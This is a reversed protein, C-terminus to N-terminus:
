TESVGIHKEPLKTNASSRLVRSPSGSEFDAQHATLVQWQLSCAENHVLDGREWLFEAHLASKKNLWEDRRRIVLAGGLKVCSPGSQLWSAVQQDFWQEELMVSAM